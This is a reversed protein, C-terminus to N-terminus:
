LLNRKREIDARILDKMYKSKNSLGNLHEIIDNDQPTFVRFNITKGHLKNYKKQAEYNTLRDYVKQRENKKLRAAESLGM